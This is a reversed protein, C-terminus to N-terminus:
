AADGPSPTDLNAPIFFRQLRRLREGAADHRRRELPPLSDRFHCASRHAADGGAPALAPDATRCVPQALPCRTHFRCAAPPAIPSPVDGELPAAGGEGPVSALLARTYPHRPDAFVAEAPGEEVIQGLYM